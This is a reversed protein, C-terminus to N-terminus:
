RLPTTELGERLEVLSEFAAIAGADRLEQESFGGTLVGITKVGARQAAEVDWPTDGIMVASLNGVKRMAAVVLDAEPKTADVDSSTTWADALDRVGLLDLYREVEDEKASSALVVRHGRRRIEEILERAGEMAQVEGILEQYREAEAARVGDGSLREFEEGALAEVLNDGGMGIHRHVRWMPLTLGHERFARWWALTHQYNSDVLTGDIDLIAASPV